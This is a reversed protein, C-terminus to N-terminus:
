PQLQQAELFRSSQETGMYLGLLRPNTQRLDVSVLGDLAGAFDPDTSFALFKGGLKLYERVLTPLGKGDHEAGAVQKSLEKPALRTCQEELLNTGVPRLPSVLSALPHLYAPQMLTGAILQRSFDSYSASVSVPGFLKTYQPRDCVIRGIGKWLLALVRSSRQFEPRVFSRGMEMAPGLRALFDDSYNFLSNTYLASCGRKARLVDTFGIRYSGLVQGQETDWVFLHKYWSDYEDLDRRRGTGEGVQRFSIERLRGIENVISPVQTQDAIAVIYAGSAYLIQSPSLRELEARMADVSEPNAIDSDNAAASPALVRAADCKLAQIQLAVRQRVASQTTLDAATQSRISTAAVPQTRSPPHPTVDRGKAEQPAVSLQGAGLETAGMLKDHHSQM